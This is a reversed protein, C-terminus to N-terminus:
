GTLSGSGCAATAAQCGWDGPLGLSSARNEQALYRYFELSTEASRMWDMLEPPLVPKELGTVVAGLASEWMAPTVPDPLGAIREPLPRHELRHAASGRTVWIDNLEGLMAGIATLGTSAVFEPIIEFIIAGLAPLQPVIEALIEMLAPEVLGSHADLWFGNESQGGAVHIEWVREPLIAKCFERVTQRGNRENCLLNHLDLVIGCDAREAVEAAFTGDPMEGPRAPLYSVPTEFAVPMATTARRHAIHEAAQSIGDPCQAPPLFFGTCVAPEASGVSSPVFQNFSLHDSIWTPQVAAIDALLTERHSATQGIRGGFPAGVGHLLRPQPLHRLVEPLRSV